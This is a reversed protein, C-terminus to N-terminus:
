EMTGNWDLGDAPAYLADWSLHLDFVGGCVQGSASCTGWTSPCGSREYSDVVGYVDFTGYDGSQWYWTSGTVEVTMTWTDSTGRRAATGVYTGDPGVEWRDADNDACDSGGNVYMDGWGDGDADVTCVEPELVAAGPFLLADADDCDDWVPVGDGDGDFDDEGGCDSDVGDYPEDSAGPHVTADSDDCDAGEGGAYGDGDQDILDGGACDNDIADYPVEDSSPSVSADHDDCDDGGSVTSAHGDGDSDTGDVGDCNQDVGDGAIDTATPGINPDADNCDGDDPAYGDGDGDRSPSPEVTSGRDTDGDDHRGQGTGGCAVLCLALAFPQESLFTRTVQPEWKLPYPRRM